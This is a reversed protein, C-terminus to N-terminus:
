SAVTLWSGIFPIVPLQSKATQPSFGTASFGVKRSKVRPIRDVAAIESALIGGYLAM